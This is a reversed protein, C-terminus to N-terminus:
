SERSRFLRLEPSSTVGAPRRRSRRRSGARWSCCWFSCVALVFATSVSSRPSRFRSCRKGFRQGRCGHVLAGFVMATFALVPTPIPGLVGPRFGDMAAVAVIGSVWAMATASAAFKSTRSIAAFSVLIAVDAAFMAGFAIAASIDLM